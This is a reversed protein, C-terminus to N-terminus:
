SFVELQQKESIYTNGGMEMEFWVNYIGCDMELSETDLQYYAMGKNRVSVSAKDVILRLDEEQPMCAVCAMEISIKVPSSIVMNEYYRELASATPVNPTIEITLYKKEGYRFRNPRFQFSFDYVLPEWSTYWLDPYVKWHQEITAISEGEEVEVEWVDLYNGIVFEPDTLNVTVYYEGTSEKTIQASTFTQFLVRGDLNQESVVTSDLYYIKVSNFDHVDQQQNSNYTYLRLKVQDGIVPNQSREKITM